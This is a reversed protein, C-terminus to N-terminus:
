LHKFEYYLKSDGLLNYPYKERFTDIKDNAQKKLEEVEQRTKSYDNVIDNILKDINNRYIYREKNYGNIYIMYGQTDQYANNYYQFELKIKVRSHPYTKNKLEISLTWNNNDWDYYGNHIYVFDYLDNLSKIDEEIKERTKEGIRKNQYKKLTNIIKDYDEVIFMAIINNVLINTKLGAKKLIDYDQSRFDKAKETYYEKQTEILENLEKKM